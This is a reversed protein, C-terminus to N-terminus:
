RSVYIAGGQMAHPRSSKSMVPFPCNRHSDLCLDSPICRSHRSGGGPDGCRVSPKRGLRGSRLAAASPGSSPPPAAGPRPRRHMTERWNNRQQAVGGLPSYGAYILTVAAPQSVPRHVAGRVGCWGAPRALLRPPPRVRGGRISCHAGHVPSLRGAAGTAAACRRFACSVDGGAAGVDGYCLQCRWPARRCSWPARHCSWRAGHCGRSCSM